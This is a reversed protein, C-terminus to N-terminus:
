LHKLHLVVTTLGEVFNIPNGTSDCLMVEITHITSKNLPIFMPKQYRLNITDGFTSTNFAIPRLLPTSTNGVPIRQCLDCYVFINNIGRQLDVQLTASQTKTSMQLTTEEFGLVNHVGNDFHLTTIYPTTPSVTDVTIKNLRENYNFKFYKALAPKQLEKVLDTASKYKGTKLELRYVETEESSIIYSQNKPLPLSKIYSFARRPAKAFAPPYPARLANTVHLIAVSNPQLNENAKIFGFDQALDRPIELAIPLTCNTVLQIKQNILKFWFQISNDSTSKLVIQDAYKVKHPFLPDIQRPSSNLSDIRLHTNKLAQNYDGISNVPPCVSKLVGSYKPLIQTVRLKDSSQITKLSNKFSIELLGVGWESANDLVIEKELQTVFRSPTNGEQSNSPLIIYTDSMTLSQKM